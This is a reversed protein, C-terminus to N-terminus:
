KALIFKLNLRLYNILGTIVFKSFLFVLMGSIAAFGFVGLCLALGSVGAWANLGFVDASFLVGLGAFAGSALAFTAAWGFFFFLAFFFGPILLMLFNFPALVLLRGLIKFVVTWRLPHKTSTVEQLLNEAEYAQAITVPSGLDSCIQSESKGNAKGHIFHERYDSLIDEVNAVKLTVLNERLITLFRQENMDQPSM